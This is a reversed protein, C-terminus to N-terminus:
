HNSHQQKEFQKVVAIKASIITRFSSSGYPCVQQSFMDLTSQGDKLMTAAVFVAKAIKSPYMEMVYSICAGGFDHGM